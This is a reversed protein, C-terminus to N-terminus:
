QGDLTGEQMQRFVETEFPLDTEADAEAEEAEEILELVVVSNMFHDYLADVGERFGQHYETQEQNDSISKVRLMMRLILADADM